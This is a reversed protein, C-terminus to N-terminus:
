CLFSDAFFPQREKRQQATQLSGASRGKPYVIASNLYPLTNRDIVRGFAKLLLFSGSPKVYKFIFVKWYCKRTQLLVVLM